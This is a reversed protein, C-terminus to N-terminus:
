ISCYIDLGVGGLQLAQEGLKDHGDVHFEHCPGLSQLPVRHMRPAKYGPFRKLSGEPDVIKIVDRILQSYSTTLHRYFLIWCKVIGPFHLTKGSSLMGSPASVEEDPAIPASNMLSLSSQKSKLFPRSSHALTRSVWDSGKKSSSQEGIDFADPKAELKCSKFHGFEGLTGDMSQSWDTSSSRIKSVQM